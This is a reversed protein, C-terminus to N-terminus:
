GFGTSESGGVGVQSNALPSRAGECEVVEDESDSSSSVKDIEPWCLRCRTTYNDESPEDDFFAAKKFKRRRAMWCGGGGAKHLRGRDIRNFVVM